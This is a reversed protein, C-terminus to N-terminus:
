DCNAKDTGEYKARRSRRRQEGETEATVPPNSLAPGLGTTDGCSGDGATEAVGCECWVSQGVSMEIVFM